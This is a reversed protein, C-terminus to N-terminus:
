HARWGKSHHIQLMQVQATYLLDHTFARCTQLLQPPHARANHAFLVVQHGHMVDEVRLPDKVVGLHPLRGSLSYKCM